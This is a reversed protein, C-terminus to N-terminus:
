ADLIMQAMREGSGACLTWGMHGHGTNIWIGPMPTDGIFPYPGKLVPRQATWRSVPEGLTEIYAPDIGAWIDVLEDPTTLGISGSIRVHDRFVTLASHSPAHMIPTDWINQEPKKFNIAHGMVGELPLKLGTQAALQVSGMGAAIVIHDASLIVDDYSVRGPELTISGVNYHVTVGKLTIDAELAKAYLYADGSFDKPLWLGCKGLPLGAESIPMAVVGIDAYNSQAEECETITDFLQLCGARRHIDDRGLSIMRRKILEQSYQGLEVISKIEADTMDSGLWSRAQSPHIMGSNSFSAGLGPGSRSDLVTVHAGKTVLSDATSLGILGAGIVIIHPSLEM